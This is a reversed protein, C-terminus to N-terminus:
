ELCDLIGLSQPSTGPVLEVCEIPLELCSLPEFVAEDLPDLGADGIPELGADGFCADELELCPGFIGPLFADRGEDPGLVGEFVCGGELLSNYM